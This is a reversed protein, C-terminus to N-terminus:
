RGYQGETFGFSKFTDRVSEIPLKDGYSISEIISIDDLEKICSRMLNFYTTHYSIYKNAALIITQMDSSTVIECVKGDEHYIFSSQGTKLLLNNSMLNLQDELSLSFKHVLGDSLRVSIGKFIEESCRDSMEQIKANQSNLLLSKSTNVVEGKLLSNKIVYYEKDSIAQLTVVKYPHEQHSIKGDLVYVEDTNDSYVANATYSDTVAFKGPKGLYKMYVPSEIADIVYNNYIIKYM